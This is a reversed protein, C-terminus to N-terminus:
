INCINRGWVKIYLGKTNYNERGHLYLQMRHHGPNSCLFDYHLFSHFELGEADMHDTRCHIQFTRDLNQVIPPIEQNSICNHYIYKQVNKENQQSCLYLNIILFHCNPEFSFLVRSTQMDTCPSRTDLIFFFEKRYM